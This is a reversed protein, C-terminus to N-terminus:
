RQRTGLKGMIWRGADNVKGMFELHKHDLTTLTKDEYLRILEYSDLGMRKYQEIMVGFAYNKNSIAVEDMDVLGAYKGDPSVIINKPTIGCHYLGMSNEGSQKNMIRVGNSLFKAAIKGSTDSVNQRAVQHIYKFSSEPVLNLNIDSMKIFDDVADNYVSKVARNDMGKHVCEYLTRGPIIKYVEMWSGKYTHMSIDPVSVGAQALLKSYRVNKSVMDFHNFKFVYTDDGDYVFLTNHSNGPISPREAKYAFPLVQRIANLYYTPVLNM